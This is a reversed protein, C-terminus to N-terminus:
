LLLPACAHSLMFNDKIGIGADIIRHCDKKSKL